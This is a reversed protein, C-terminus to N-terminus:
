EKNEMLTNKHILIGPIELELEAGNVNKRIYTLKFEM